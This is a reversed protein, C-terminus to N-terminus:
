KYYYNIIPGDSTQLYGKIIIKEHHVKQHCKKCLVILNSENNKHIHSKNKIYGSCDCDKQFNIHHTDLYEIYEDSILPKHHCIQCKEMYISSNYKSKRVDLLTKSENMHKKKIKEAILIFEECQIRFKAVLLGYTEPGSGDILQRYFILRKKLNDFEVKLHCIKLEKLNIIEPLTSIKHIHSTFIFNCNREILLLLISTIISIASIIETGRCVEDGIVLTNKGKNNTRQLISNLEFMELDFSSLGKMLNDNGNIRAYIGTYPFYIFSEAPVYYGIQALIISLGIEKQISSKGASNLGYILYGKYELGISIDHPIYESITNIREIIPHRLQFTKIYSSGNNKDQIIPKVYRFEQACVAGSYLFDIMSIFDELYKFCKYYKNTYNQLCELYKDKVKYRLNEKIEDIKYSYEYLEPIILKYNGKDQNKISTNKFEVKDWKIITKDLKSIEKKLIDGRKKTIKIYNREITNYELSICKKPTEKKDVLGNVYKVIKEIKNTLILINNQEEQFQNKFFSNDINNLMYKNMETLNFEKTYEEIFNEFLNIKDKNLLKKIIKSKKCINIIKIISEYTEHLRIFHKPHLKGIILYRHLRELDYIKKLEEKLEDIFHKKIESIMDYRDNIEEINTIPNLLNYHLFKKGSITLTKNIIEFLSNKKNGNLGCIDLQEIVDNGLILFKDQEYLQPESLNKIVSPDKSYIFNLQIIYSIIGYIYRSIGLNELMTIDGIKKHHFIKELFKNQYQTKFIDEPFLDESMDFYKYTGEKLELYKVIENIDEKCCLFINAPKYYNLLRKIEDLPFYHDSQKSCSEYMINNGTEINILSIGIALKDLYENAKNKFKCIYICCTFKDVTNELNSSIYTTSDYIGELCREKQETNKLNNTNKTEVQKFLVVTYGNEVLFYVFNEKSISNFGLLYPNKRSVEPINNNKKTCTWNINNQTSTELALKRINHGETDTAYSEYFAGIEMFVITKDKGYKKEYYNQYYFYKDILNGKKEIVIDEIDDSM